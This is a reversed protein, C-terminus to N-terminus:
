NMLFDAIEQVDFAINHSLLAFRSAPRLCAEVYQRFAGTKPDIVWIRPIGM